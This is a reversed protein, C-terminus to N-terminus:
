MAQSRMIPQSAGLYIDAQVSDDYVWLVAYGACRAYDYAAIFPKERELWGAREERTHKAFDPELELLETSYADLGTRENQISEKERRIVSNIALQAFGTADTQRRLYAYRHLHGSLVIAKHEGLWALLTNREQQQNDRSFVHWNARANYPVVPPHIIFFTHKAQKAQESISALWRLDPKYADFFVFLDKGHSWTYNASSLETGAQKAIWPLLLDDFARDADPGTIDHNGKTMLFPKQLDAADVFAIADRNQKAQLDYSGCLGEVFDGLHVVSAIPAPPNQILDRVAKFLRPLHDRTSEIYGEIQSIDNPKEARVWDMDHHEPKDYHLDGLLVFGYRAQERPRPTSASQGALTIRLPDIALGAAAALVFQRRNFM